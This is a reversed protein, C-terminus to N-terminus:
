VFLREFKNPKMECLRVYERRAEAEDWHEVEVLCKLFEAGTLEEFHRLREIFSETAAFRVAQFKNMEAGM